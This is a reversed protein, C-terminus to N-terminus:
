LTWKIYTYLLGYHGRLLMPLVLTCLLMFLIVRCGSAAHKDETLLFHPGIEFATCYWILCLFNWTSPSHVHILTHKRTQTIQLHFSHGLGLPTVLSHSACFTELTTGSCSWRDGVKVAYAVEVVKVAYSVGTYQTYPIEVLFNCLRTNDGPVLAKQGSKSPTLICVNYFDNWNLYCSSSCRSSWNCLQYAWHSCTALM